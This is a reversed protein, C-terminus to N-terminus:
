RYIVGRKEMHYLLLRVPNLPWPYAPRPVIKIQDTAGFPASLAPIVFRWGHVVISQPGSLELDSGALLEVVSESCTLIKWEPKMLFVLYTCDLAQRASAVSGLLGAYVAALCPLSLGCSM